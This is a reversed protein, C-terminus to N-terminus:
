ERRNRRRRKRSQKKNKQKRICKCPILTPFIQTKIRRLQKKEQTDLGNKKIEKRSPTKKKMKQREFGVKSMEFM